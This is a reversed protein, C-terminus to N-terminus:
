APKYRDPHAIQASPTALAATQLRHLLPFEKEVSIDQRGANYCQPVLYLDAASLSDGYAFTGAHSRCLTEFAKLGQYTWHAGWKKQEVPDSSHHEMVSLNQIPQTGANIVEVLARVRARDLADKPYLPPTPHTEELWEIMAVSETLIGGGQIELVPVYGLPNLARFAATQTTDDLLNVAILETTALLGKHALAWRVRWSSSSRWYHHLKLGKM